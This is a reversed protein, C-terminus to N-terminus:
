HVLHFQESLLDLEPGPCALLSGATPFIKLFSAFLCFGSPQIRLHEECHQWPMTFRGYRDGPFGPCRTMWHHVAARFHIFVFHHRLKRKEM